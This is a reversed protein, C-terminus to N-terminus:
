RPIYNGLLPLVRNGLQMVRAQAAEPTEGPSMVSMLRIMAGDSRNMRISDTILYYKAQYDSAIQRGHAQFWYLVVQRQGMRSVVYRNAPFSSGDPNKMEVRQRLIPVWGGGPLCHNPSHITEGMRQSPFYVVFVNIEEQNPAEYNRLLFEGPGLIELTQPDIGEDAGTWGDIQMPLSSLAERPPFVENQSHAQLGVATALMLGATVLFRTLWGSAPSQKGRQEIEKTGAPKTEPKRNNKWILNILGHLSFLMILAAVFVLWGQFEHFFGQAKDPDWFQGVLGTGVIRFVNAAVAIPVAGFALAIRVWNRTEMLYGYIIALTVLSLLSRLGSCAEAIELSMSALHIVNGVRLVPIGMVRLALTALRSALMQLPFTFTQLITTPLPIMLFLVAWPFFLARFFNWGWFLLILGAFLILFSVRSTFLESGLEGIVVMALAMLVLPLGIWSPRAQIERLKKRNQWIVFLSFAPVFIGHSFNPDIIWQAVLRYFISHYLWVVLLLLTLSQLRPLGSTLPEERSSVAPAIEFSNGM